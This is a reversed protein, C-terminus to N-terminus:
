LIVGDIQDLYTIKDCIKLLEFSTNERVAIVHIKFGMNSLEQLAYSFDGDGSILVIWTHDFNCSDRMMDVNIYNDINTNTEIDIAKVRWGNSSMYTVFKRQNEQRVDIANYSTARLVNYENEVYKLLKTFELKKYRFFLNNQDLYVLAKELMFNFELQEEM